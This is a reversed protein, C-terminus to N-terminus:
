RRNAMHYSSTKVITKRTDDALDRSDGDWRIAVGNTAVVPGVLATRIRELVEGIRLYSGPNDHVWVTLAQIDAGEFQPTLEEFVLVIFPKRSPTEEVTGASYIRHGVISTLGADNQLTQYVYTRWDM